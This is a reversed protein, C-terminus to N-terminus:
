KMRRFLGTVVGQIEVRDLYIPDMADNEPQLRIKGKEHFLRKVTAEDEVLAVVIEGDRATNQPRVIIYDGDRIGANVMSEGKVRLLFSGDDDVLSDSIYLNDEINQEATIPIGAAVRGVLPLAVVHAPGNREECLEIARNKGGNRRILGRKELRTLYGHVTSTSSLGVAEGIERVSPPYGKEEAFSKLYEYIRKQKDSIERQTM